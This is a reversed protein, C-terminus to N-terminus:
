VTSIHWANCRLQLGLQMAFRTSLTCLENPNDDVLRPAGWYRSQWKGRRKTPTLKNRSFPKETQTHLLQLLQQQLYHLHMNNQRHLKRHRLVLVVAAECGCLWCSSYVFFTIKKQKLVSGDSVTCWAFIYIYIIYIRYFATKGRAYISYAFM